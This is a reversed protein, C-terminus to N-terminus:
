VRLSALLISVVNELTPTTTWHLSRELKWERGLRKKPRISKGSTSPADVRLQKTMSFSITHVEGTM